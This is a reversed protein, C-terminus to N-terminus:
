HPITALLKAVLTDPAERIDLRIAHHPPELASIQSRLLAAPMFHGARQQMRSAITEEDGDLWVVTLGPCASELLERYRQKLASCALVFGGPERRIADALAALWPARDTDDLPIGARMKEINAAPHFDDADLFTVGAAAALQQGITTKGSGSVGMLLVRM